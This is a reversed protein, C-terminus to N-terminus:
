NPLRSDDDWGANFGVADPEAGREGVLMLDFFIARRGVFWFHDRENRAFTEYAAADM